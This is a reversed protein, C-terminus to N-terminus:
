SKINTPYPSTAPILWAKGKQIAGEIRGNQCMRRVIAIQRGHLEAFEPVTLYRCENDLLLKKHKEAHMVHLIGKDCVYAVTDGPYSEMALEEPSLKNPVDSYDPNNFDILYNRAEASNVLLIKGNQLLLSLAGKYEVLRSKM